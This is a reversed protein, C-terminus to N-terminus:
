ELIFKARSGPRYNSLDYDEGKVQMSVASADGLIVTWPAVGSLPMVKGNNKIGEALIEGNADTIRVWCDNSFTLTAQIVPETILAKSASQQNLLESNLNGNNISSNQSETNSSTTSLNTETAVAENSSNNKEQSNLELKIDGENVSESKISDVKSQELSSVQSSQKRAVNNGTSSDISANAISSNKAGSNIKDSISNDSNDIDSSENESTETKLHSLSILNTETEKNLFKPSVQKWLLWGGYLLIGGIVLYTIIKILPSNSNVERRKEGFASIRQINQIPEDGRATQRDFEDCLMNIDIGVKQGYSRVYGRIFALPIEQEFQNNEIKEVVGVTLNLQSAIDQASYNQNERAEVLLAGINLEQTESEQIKEEVDM